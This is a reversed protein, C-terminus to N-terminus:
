ESQYKRAVRELARSRAVDLLAMMALLGIALLRPEIHVEHFLLRRFAEWIVYLATLLLLGTEVFAAFSEVKAHGYPHNADAPQDSVRVSLYTVIAAILDLGSHLAESLIGLSGTAVTLFVKLSVLLVATGVSALAAIKKERM